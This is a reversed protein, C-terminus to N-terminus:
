GTTFLAEIHSLRRKCSNGASAYRTRTRFGLVSALLQMMILLADALATIETM